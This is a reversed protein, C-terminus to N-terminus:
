RNDATTNGKKKKKLQNHGACHTKLLYVQFISKHFLVYIECSCAAEIALTCSIRYRGDEPLFNHLNFIAATPEDSFNTSHVLYLKVDCVVTIKLILEGLIKFRV